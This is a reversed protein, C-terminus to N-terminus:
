AEGLDTEPIPVFDLVVRGFLPGRPSLTSPRARPDPAVRRPTGEGVKTRAERVPSRRDLRARGPELPGRRELLADGRSRRHVRRDAPGRGQRRSGRRRLLRRTPRRGARRHRRVRPHLPRHRAPHRELRRRRDPSAHDAAGHRRPRPPLARSRPARLLDAPRDAPVGGRLRLRAQRLERHRRLRAPRQGPRLRSRPLRRDGRRHARLQRRLGQSEQGRRGRAPLRLLHQPLAGHVSGRDGRGQRALRGGPAPAAPRRGRARRRSRRRRRRLAARRAGAGGRARTHEGGVPSGLRVRAAPARDLSRQGVGGRPDRQLRRRRAGAGGVAGRAREM